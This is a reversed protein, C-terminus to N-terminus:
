MARIRSTRIVVPLRVFNPCAADCWAAGWDTTVHCCNVRKAVGNGLKTVVPVGM